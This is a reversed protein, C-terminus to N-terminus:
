TSSAVERVTVGLIGPLGALLRRQYQLARHMGALPGFAFAFAFARIKSEM